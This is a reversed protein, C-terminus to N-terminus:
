TCLVYVYINRITDNIIAFLYFCSKDVLPLIFLYIFISYILGSPNCAATFILLISAHTTLLYIEFINTKFVAIIVHDSINKFM